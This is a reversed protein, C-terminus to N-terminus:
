QGENAHWDLCLDVAKTPVERPLAWPAEGAFM